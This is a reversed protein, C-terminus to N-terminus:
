RPLNTSARLKSGIYATAALGLPYLVFWGSFSFVLGALAASLLALTKGIRNPLVRYSAIMGLTYVALFNACPFQILTQLQLELLYSVGLVFGLVPLFSLLAYHPTQFRPHLRSFVPPLAGDRAQAYVLRSFGAIFTHVPCYCAILGLFSVLLSAQEGWGYAALTIMATLPTASQYALTGITVFAILMYLINIVLAALGLSLPIDKRPRRFEEALHGIMEWGIFAFFLLSMTQGVPLWGHPLFPSFAAPRVQPLSATIALFLIGLISSVVLVQVRGSLDIGRYNLVIAILLMAAAVGYVAASSWGMVDGLYHAGILATVPMGFPMAGLIWLGVIRSTNEGLGQRVYTAIGGSDPYRSSMMSIVAVMPISLLGMFLWSLLSAPGAMAAALAPLVLIGAGLVAGTTLAAGQLWTISKKLHITEKM